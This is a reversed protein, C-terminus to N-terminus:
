QTARGELHQSKRKKKGRSFSVRWDGSIGDILVRISSYSSVNKKGTKGRLDRRQGSWGKRGGNM